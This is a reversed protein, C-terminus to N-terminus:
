VGSQTKYERLLNKATIELDNSCLVFYCAEEFQNKIHGKNEEANLKVYYETINETKDPNKPQIGLKRKEKTEILMEINNYKIKKFDKKSLKTIEKEVDEM